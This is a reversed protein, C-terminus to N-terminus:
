KLLTQKFDFDETLIGIYWKFYCINPGSHYSSNYQGYVKMKELFHRDHFKCFSYFNKVYGKVTNMLPKLKPQNIRFGYDWIDQYLLETKNDKKDFFIINNAQYHIVKEREGRIKDFWETEKQLYTAFDSDLKTGKKIFWEKQSHFSDNPIIGRKKDFFYPTIGAIDDMLMKLYIFFIELDVTLLSYFEPYYIAGVTKTKNTKGEEEVLGDNEDKIRRLIICLNNFHRNFGTISKQTLKDFKIKRLHTLINITVLLNGLPSEICYPSNPDFMQNTVTKDYM